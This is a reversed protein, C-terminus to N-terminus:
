GTGNGSRDSPVIAESIARPHKTSDRTHVVSSAMAREEYEMETIAVRTVLQELEDDPMIPCVRQLSSRVIARLANYRVRRLADDPPLHRDNASPRADRRSSSALLRNAALRGLAGQRAASHDRGALEKTIADFRAYLTTLREGDDAM